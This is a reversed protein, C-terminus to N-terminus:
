QAAERAAFLDHVYEAIGWIGGWNDFMRANGRIESLEDLVERFTAEPLGAVVAAVAEGVEQYTSYRWPHAIAEDAEAMLRTIGVKGLPRQRPSM